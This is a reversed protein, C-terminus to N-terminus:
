KNTPHLIDIYHSKPVAETNLIHSFALASQRVYNYIAIPSAERPSLALETRPQASAVWSPVLPSDVALRRGKKVEPASPSCAGDM